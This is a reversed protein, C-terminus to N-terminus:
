EKSHGPRDAVAGDLSLTLPLNSSVGLSVSRLAEFRDFKWLHTLLFGALQLCLDLGTQLPNRHLEYRLVLYLGSLM